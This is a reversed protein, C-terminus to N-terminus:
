AGSYYKEWIEPRRRKIDKYPITIWGGFDEDWTILGGHIPCKVSCFHPYKGPCLCGKLDQVCTCKEAM